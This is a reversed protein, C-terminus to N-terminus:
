FRPVLEILSSDIKFPGSLTPPIQMIHRSHNPDHNEKLGRYFQDHTQKCDQMMTVNMQEM